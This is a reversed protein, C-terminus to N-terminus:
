SPANPAIEEGRVARVKLTDGARLANLCSNIGGKLARRAPSSTFADNLSLAVDNRSMAAPADAGGRGARRQRALAMIDSPNFGETRMRQGVFGARTLAAGLGKETWLTIHEPPSVVSWRTGLVKMNVSRANPTTIYLIGGPRLLAAASELFPTPDPVHEIFEIMTVVDFSKPAFRGDSEADSAVTWGRERGYALAHPSVEIGFCRWGLRDAITLLGGEGYGVDLWAGTRRFPEFSRAVRELSMAASPPLEFSARDYYHDYIEGVDPSGADVSTFVSRCEGCRQLRYGAKEGFTTHRRAGCAPCAGDRDSRKGESM